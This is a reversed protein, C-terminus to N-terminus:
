RLTIIPENSFIRHVLQMSDESFSYASDTARLESPLNQVPTRTMDTFTKLIARASKIETTNEVGCDAFDSVWTESLSIVAAIRSRLFQSSSSVFAAIFREYVRVDSNLRQKASYLPTSTELIETEGLALDIAPSYSFPFFIGRGKFYEFASLSKDSQRERHPM